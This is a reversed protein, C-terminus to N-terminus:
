SVSASIHEVSTRNMIGATILRVLFKGAPIFRYYTEKFIVSLYDTKKFMHISDDIRMDLCIRSTAKRTQHYAEATGSALMTRNVARFMKRMMQCLFIRIYPYAQDM